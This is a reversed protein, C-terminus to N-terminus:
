SFGLGREKLSVFGTPRGASARGCIIHDICEIDILKGAQVIARTLAVDDPSPTPDGSPHAHAVIISTANARIAAKFIEGIRVQACNVSGRYLKHIAILRNRTNLLLIWMEEQELLSMDYQILAAAEAPSTIAPHEDDTEVALRRGLELASALRAATQQGIGRVDALEGPSAKHIRRLSGFHAILAEATEIQRPGGILAALLEVLNCATPADAVRRLPREREPLGDLRNSYTTQVSPTIM